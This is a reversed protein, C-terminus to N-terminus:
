TDGALDRRNHFHRLLALGEGGINGMGVILASKGVLALLQEFVEAAPVDGVMSLRDRAGGAAVYARAFVHTGRGMVVVKDAPPWGAAAHGLDHSREPRDHRCNVLAISSQHVDTAGPGTYRARMERWILETSVPDNAAFANVFSLRRGFFAVTLCTTAGIDPQAAWMGSLAVQRAVGLDHLVMLAVMVNDAHERYGFRGMEEDTPAPLPTREAGDPLLRLQGCTVLRTKRDRAAHALIDLHKAEATYLVGGRPVMGCLARAVDAESPGMVELHDPRVNTIVGHTAAVLQRECLWQLRPRLAMCELVLAQVGLKNALAVVDRQEIVNPRTRRVVDREAGDPLLIRPLSGTTKGLTPTGAARLGAAILRTTSSKGRTGNVHIRVPLGALARAHGRYEAMGLGVLGLTTAALPVAQALLADPPM